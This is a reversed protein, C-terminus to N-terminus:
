TTTQDSRSTNRPTQTVNAPRSDSQMTMEPPGGTSSPPQPGEDQEGCQPQTATLLDVIGGPTDVTLVFGLDGLVLLLKNPPRRLSPHGGYNRLSVSPTTLRKITDIKWQEKSQDERREGVMISMVFELSIITAPSGTDILTQTPVGNVCVETYVSPGLRSGGSDDVGSMSHLVDASKDLAEAEQLQKRLDEIKKEAERRSTTLASMTGERQGHAEEQWKKKPYPCARSMHVKIGCNFCRGRSTRAGQTPPALPKTTTQPRDESTTISDPRKLTGKFKSQTEKSPQTGSVHEAFERGKAEEFRAKLM